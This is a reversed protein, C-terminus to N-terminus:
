QFRTVGLKVRHQMCTMFYGCIISRFRLHVAMSKAIVLVGHGGTQPNNCGYNVCVLCGTFSTANLLKLYPFSVRPTQREIVSIIESKYKEWICLV